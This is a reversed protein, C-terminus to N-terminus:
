CQSGNTQWLMFAEHRQRRPIVTAARVGDALRSKERGCATGRSIVSLIEAWLLAELAEDWTEGWRMNTLSVVVPSSVLAALM